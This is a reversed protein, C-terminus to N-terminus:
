ESIDYRLSEGSESIIIDKIKWLNTNAMVKFIFWCEKQTIESRVIVDYIMTSDKFDITMDEIFYVYRNFKNSKIFNVFDVSFRDRCVNSKNSKIIVSKEILVKIFEPEKMLTDVIKKPGSISSHTNTEQSLIAEQSIVFLIFIMIVKM